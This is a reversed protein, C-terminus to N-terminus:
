YRLRYYIYKIVEKEFAASGPMGRSWDELRYDPADLAIVRIQFEIPLARRLMWRVRRTSFIETPVIISHLNRQEMCARLALAEEHTNRLAHGFAEIASEPVGLKLLIAESDPGDILIKTVLGQRYYQAAAFPRVTVGGGLIAVADAPGLPDSIIWQDAAARLLWERGTWVALAVPAIVAFLVLASRWLKM